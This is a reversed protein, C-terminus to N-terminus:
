GRHIRLPLKKHIRVPAAFSSHHEVIVSKMTNGWYATGNSWVTVINAGNHQPVFISVGWIKDDGKHLHRTVRERPVTQDHFVATRSTLESRKWVIPASNRFSEQKEQSMIQADKFVCWIPRTLDIAQHTHLAFATTMSLLTKM